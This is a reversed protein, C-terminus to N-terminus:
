ICMYLLGFFLFVLSITKKQVHLFGMTGLVESCFTSTDELIKCLVPDSYIINTLKPGM